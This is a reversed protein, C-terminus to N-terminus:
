LRIKVSLAEAHIHELLYIINKVHNQVNYKVDVYVNGVQKWNGDKQPDAHERKSNIFYKDRGAVNYIPLHNPKLQGNALLWQVLKICLDSWNKTPIEQENVQLSLPKIKSISDKQALQQLTFMESAVVSRIPLRESVRPPLAVLTRDLSKVLPKSAPVSSISDIYQSCVDLEPKYGCLDEVKEALLELLIEDKEEILRNWANPLTANIKRRRSVDQYDSRAAELAKGSCVRDYQLYRELYQSIDEPEREVIDLKYVRREQYEGEEAPLYFHWERGDALIALPVGKHFAYEFLQRDAGDAKGVAKVEMFIVPREAHVCLAYDVRRGELSFQPVVKSIDFVPWGLANLIPLVVGQSVAAENQLQGRAM